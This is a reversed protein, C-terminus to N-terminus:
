FYVGAALYFGVLLEQNFYTSTKKSLEQFKIGTMLYPKVNENIDIIAGLGALGNFGGRNYYENISKSGISFSYGAEISGFLKVKEDRPTELSVYSFGLKRKRNLAFRVVVGIPVIKAGLTSKIDIGNRPEYIALGTNVGVLMNGGKLLKGYILNFGGAYPFNGYMEVIVVSQIYNVLEDIRNELAENKAILIDAQLNKDKMFNTLVEIDRGASALRDSLIDKETKLDSILSKNEESEIGLRTMELILKEYEFTLDSLQGNIVYLLETKKQMERRLEKNEQRTINNNSVLNKITLNLNSIQTQKDASIKKLEQVRDILKSLATQQANASSFFFLIFLFLISMKSPMHEINKLLSKPKNL